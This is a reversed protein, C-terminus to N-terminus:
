DRLNGVAVKCAFSTVPDDNGSLVGRVCLREAGGGIFFWAAVLVMLVLVGGLVRGVVPTAAGPPRGALSRGVAVAVVGLVVVLLLPWVVGSVALLLVVVGVIGLLLRDAPGLTRAYVGLRERLPVAPEATAANEAPRYVAAAVLGLCTLLVLTNARSPLNTAAVLLFLCVAAMVFLLPRRSGRDDM